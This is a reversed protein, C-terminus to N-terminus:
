ARTSELHRAGRLPAPTTTHVEDCSLGDGGLIGSESPVVVTRDPPIHGPHPTLMRPVTRFGGMTPSAGDGIDAAAEAASTMVTGM